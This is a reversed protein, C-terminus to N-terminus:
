SERRTWINKDLTEKCSREGVMSTAYKKLNQTILNRNIFNEIKTVM